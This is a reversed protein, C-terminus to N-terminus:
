HLAGQHRAVFSDIAAQVPALAMAAELYVDSMDAPINGAAVEDALQSAIVERYHEVVSARLEILQDGTM